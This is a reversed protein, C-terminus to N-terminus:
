KVPYYVETVWKATDPETGPDTIYVEWPAGNVELKKFALYKAIQDHTGELKHYDGMHIAMVAKGGNSIMIPYKAPLKAGAPVSLACVMDMEKNEEDYRPYLCFPPGTMEVKAKQLVGVLEGYSKGMQASVSEMDELSMTSSIGIYHQPSTEVVAISVTFRPKAEAIEKLKSLNYDFAKDMEPKIMLAGIWRMFPNMGMGASFGITLTTGEGKEDLTYWSKATGQDMFDLDIKISKNPLSETITMSGEGAEEGEWSSFAGVGSSVDGYTVKMDDKYLNNWYSWDQNKELDNIEDFVYEAPANISISKIVEINAPLIFGILLLAVILGALGILIKKVM